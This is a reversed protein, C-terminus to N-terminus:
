DSSGGHFVVCRQRSEDHIVYTFWWWVYTYKFEGDYKFIRAGEYDILAKVHGWFGVLNYRIIYDTSDWSVSQDGFSWTSRILAQNVDDIMNHASCEVLKKSESQEEPYAVKLMEIPSLDSGSLDYSFVDFDAEHNGSLSFDRIANLYGRFKHFEPSEFVTPMM